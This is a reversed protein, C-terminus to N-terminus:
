PRQRDEPLDHLYPPAESEDERDLGEFCSETRQYKPWRTLQGQNRKCFNTSTRELLNNSFLISDGEFM